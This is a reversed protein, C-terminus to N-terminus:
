KEKRQFVTTDKIGTIAQNEKYCSSSTTIEFPPDATQASVNHGAIPDMTQCLTPYADIPPGQPYGLAPVLVLFFAACVKQM